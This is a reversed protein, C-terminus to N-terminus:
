YDKVLQNELSFDFKLASFNFICANNISILPASQPNPQDTTLIWEPYEDQIKNLTRGCADLYTFGHRYRLEFVVRQLVTIKM